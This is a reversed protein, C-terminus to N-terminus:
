PRAPDPDARAPEPAPERAPTLESNQIERLDQSFARGSGANYFLFIVGGLLSWVLMGLYSILSLPLAQSIPIQVAGLLVVAVGERIGLGGPTIPLSAVALISPFMMLYDGFGNPIQLARGLAYCGAVNLLHNALSLAFARALLSHDTRYLYFADYARRLLHGFPWRNEIWRFVSHREFINRKLLLALALALAAFLVLVLLCIPHTRKQALFFPARAVIMAAALMFLALLGIVRDAVVTMIAEAKLHRTERATYAAKVLDGGTSGMMFANFFHGIFFISFVRRASLRLSQADLFGKWRLVSAWICGFFLGLGLLLWAAHGLTGRLVTGLHTLDMEPRSLLWAIIGAAAALRLLAAAARRATRM